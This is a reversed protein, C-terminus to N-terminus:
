LRYIVSQIAKMVLFTSSTWYSFSGMGERLTQFWTKGLKGANRASAVAKNFEQNLQAVEQKTLEAGQATENFIRKFEGSYKVAKKIKSMFDAVKNNLSSISSDKAMTANM